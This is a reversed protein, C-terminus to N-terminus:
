NVVRPGGSSGCRGACSRCLRHSKVLTMTRLMNCRALRTDQGASQLRVGPALSSLSYRYTLSRDRSPLRTSAQRAGSSNRARSRAWAAAPPTETLWYRRVATSFSILRLSRCFPLTMDGGTGYLVGTCGVCWRCAGPSASAKTAPNASGGDRPMALALFLRAGLDSAFGASGVSRLEPMLSLTDPSLRPSSVQTREVLEKGVALPTVPGPKASFLDVVLTLAPNLSRDVM